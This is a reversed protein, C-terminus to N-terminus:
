SCLLMHRGATRIRGVTSGVHLPFFTFPPLPSVQTRLVDELIAHVHDRARIYSSSVHEAISGLSSSAHM